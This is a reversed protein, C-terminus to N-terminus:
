KVYGSEEVESALGAGGIKTICGQQMIHVQDPVIYNLIRNYHTILLLSLAPNDAKVAILAACVRRLADVDLGSDVEDLIALTPQLVALQLIEAQKKEGGSFGVNVGREVFSRDLGLLALKDDLLQNFAKLGIQKETGAYWANYATRLLDKLPLGEIEYPYQFALFIGHRARFHPALATIDEGNFRITGATVTYSPHGMIVQALTSKGSGNPGMIAHTSGPQMVLDVGHLIQTDDISAALDTVELRPHLVDISM